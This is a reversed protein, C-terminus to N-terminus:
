RKPREGMQRAPRPLREPRPERPQRVVPEGVQVYEEQEPEPEYEPEEDEPVQNIVRAHLGYHFQSHLELFLGTEGIAYFEYDERDGELISFQKVLTLNGEKLTLRNVPGRESHSYHACTESTCHGAERGTDELSFLNEDPNNLWWGEVSQINKETAM